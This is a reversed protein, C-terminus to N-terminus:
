GRYAEVSAGAGLSPDATFDVTLRELAAALVYCSGHYRAGRCDCVLDGATVSPEGVDGDARLYRGTVRVDDPDAPHVYHYGDGARNLVVFTRRELDEFAFRVETPTTAAPM